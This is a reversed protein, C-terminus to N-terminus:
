DPSVLPQIVTVTTGNGPSTIFSLGFGEGFYLKIRDNVNKIGFGRNGEAVRELFGTIEEQDAGAGNDRIIYMLNDDESFIRISIVGSKGTKEMGHHIANEVLPQLVLKVVKCEMVEPQADIIFEVKDALRKQQIKIYCGLHEIEKKVTSFEGGSNLSLRFLRSLSQVLESSETAKEMRCMWYITDLTNYLFHPNIQAQLAKLEAEKQKLQVSYVENILEGLRTSMKNFSQGLLSIEDNGKVDINVDFKEDEIDKMFSRLQKLPSLVAFSFLFIVLLCLAFSAGIAYLTISQIVQSDKSLEDLPVLNVLKWGPRSLDIYTVLFSQGDIDKRFYGRSSSYLDQNIYESNLETGIMETDQSSIINKDEDIIFFECNKSLMKSGYMRSFVEEEINIKIVALDSALNDWDKLVKMFSIVNIKSGDYNIVTDAMLIGEGRLATLRRKVDEQLINSAGASDYTWGNYGMVFISYIDARFVAFNNLSNQAALVYSPHNQIEGKSMRIYRMFENDQWLYFSSSNMDHFILNINDAVQEITNFNSQSVKEEIIETSNMYSLGGVLLLPIITICLSIIMFKYQLSFFNRSSNM